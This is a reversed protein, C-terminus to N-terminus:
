ILIEELSRKPVFHVDAEDRYYKTNGDKVDVIKVEEAPKGLAILLKPVLSGTLGLIESVECKDFNGLMCGGLGKEVAGLLITQAVIGIDTAANDPVACLDTDVCVAIYATPYKGEHPLTMNKLMKAWRTVKNLGDVENKEFVLRYKLPQLNAGSATYRTLDALARLTEPDVKVNEDFGRYSRNKKVLEELM